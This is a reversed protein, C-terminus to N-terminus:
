PSQLCRFQIQRAVAQRSSQLKKWLRTARAAGTGAAPPQHCRHAPSQSSRHIPLCPAVPRGIPQSVAIFESAGGAPLTLISYRCFSGFYAHCRPLSLCLTTALTARATPMSCWGLIASDCRRKSQRKAKRGASEILPLLFLKKMLGVSRWCFNCNRDYYIKVGASPIKNLMHERALGIPIGLPLKCGNPYFQWTLAVGDQRRSSQLFFRRASGPAKKTM